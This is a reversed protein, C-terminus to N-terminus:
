YKTISQPKDEATDTKDVTAKVEGHIICHDIQRGANLGVIPTIFLPTTQTGCHPCYGPSGTHM